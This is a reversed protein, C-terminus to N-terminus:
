SSTDDLPLLEVQSNYDELRNAMLRTCYKQLIQTVRRKKGGPNNVSCQLIKATLHGNNCLKEM